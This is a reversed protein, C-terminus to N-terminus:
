RLKWVLATGDTSATALRKGDPAFALGCISERHGSFRQLVRSPDVTRLEASGDAYGVALRQGDPSFAVKSVEKGFVLPRLPPEGDVGALWLRTGGDYEFAVLRKGDPSFLGWGLTVGAPLDIQRVLKGSTSGRLEVPTAWMALLEGDPSLTAGGGWGRAGVPYARGSRLDVVVDDASGGITTVLLHTGSRSLDLSRNEALATARTGAAAAQEAAEQGRTAVLRQGSESALVTDGSRRRDIPRGDAASWRHLFEGDFGIIESGEHSFAFRVRHMEAAPLLLPRGTGRQWWYTEGNIATSVVVQGSATVVGHRVRDNAPWEMRVLPNGDLDRETLFGDLALLAHEDPTFAVFQGDREYALKGSKTDFLATNGFSGAAVWVGSPSFSSRDGGADAVRWRV